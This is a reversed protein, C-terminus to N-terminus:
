GRIACEQAIAQDHAKKINMNLAKKQLQEGRDWWFCFAWFSTHNKQCELAHTKCKDAKSILEEYTYKTM